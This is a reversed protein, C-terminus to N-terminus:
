GFNSLAIWFAGSNRSETGINNRLLRHPRVYNVVYLDLDGDNDYDGWDAALARFANSTRSTATVDTFTGDGNNHYLIAASDGVVYLDPYGDNDFDGWAASNSKGKAM